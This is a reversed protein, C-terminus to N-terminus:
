KKKSFTCGCYDQRYLNYVSCLETSRKFGERKKFDSPLFKVGYYKALEEGINNIVHADKHPSITLTTSFYDANIQRAYEAAKSLRLRFCKECRRGREPEDELGKTISYFEAPSYGADIIKVERYLPMSNILKKLEDARKNYEEDSDINPNYFFMTLEFHANLYEIVYSSCPACCAHMVLSPVRLVCEEKIIKDLERQYNRQPNYSTMTM